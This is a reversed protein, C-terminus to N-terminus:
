RGQMALWFLTIGSTVGVNLSDWGARIPVRLTRCAALTEPRLGPGEAGLLLAWSTLYFWVLLVAVAAVSGYFLTYKGLSGVYESFVWSVILWAAFAVIVPRM